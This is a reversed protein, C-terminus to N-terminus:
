ARGPPADPVTRIHVERQPVPIEIGEERFAKLIELNLESMVDATAGPRRETWYQLEFRLGNEGLRALVAVPAPQALVARNGRAVNLLVSRVKEPDTGYPVVVEITLRARQDIGTLNVVRGTVLESNPGIAVANNPAKIWTSRGGIRMVEGSLPGVEVIDGVRIPHEILLILGSVFNNFIAQLGFWIGIGVAGGLFTLSSLNLGATQLGIMLGLFFVVYGFLNALSYRQGTDLSTHSLVRTHMFRRVLRAGITLVVLFAVAQIFLIPTVDLGPSAREAETRPGLHFWPTNLTRLADAGLMDWLSPALSPDLLRLGILAGLAVIMVILLKNATSLKM